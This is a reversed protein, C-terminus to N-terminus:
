GVSEICTCGIPCERSSHLHQHYQYSSHFTNHTNSRLSLVILVKLSKSKLLCEAWSEPNDADHPVSEVFRKPARISPELFHRIITNDAQYTQLRAVESAMATNDKPSVCVLCRYSKHVGCSSSRSIGGSELQGSTKTRLLKAFYSAFSKKTAVVLLGSTNQDLRQPTAVYVLQEMKQKQRNNKKRKYKINQAFSEGATDDDNADDSGTSMSLDHLLSERRELWLMRGVSSAVNELLNDVRAHVPINPPKNIILYGTEDDRKVIVGSKTSGDDNDDADAAVPSGWDYLNTDVFRRPNFHVRFYDGSSVSEHYNGMTL